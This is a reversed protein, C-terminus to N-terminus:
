AASTNKEYMGKKIKKGVINKRRIWQELPKPPLVEKGKKDLLGIKQALAKSLRMIKNRQPKKYFLTDKHGAQQEEVCQIGKKLVALEQKYKKQRRYLVLLRQYPLLNKCNGAIEKEYLRIALDPQGGAEAERGTTVEPIEKKKM